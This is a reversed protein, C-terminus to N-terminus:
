GIQGHSFSSFSPYVWSQATSVIPLRMRTKVVCGRLFLSLLSISRPSNFPKRKSCVMYGARQLMPPSSLTAARALARLSASCFHHLFLFCWWFFVFDMLGSYVFGLPIFRLSSSLLPPIGRGGLVLGHRPTSNPFTTIIEHHESKLRRTHLPSPPYSDKYRKKEKEKEKEKKKFWTIISKPVIDQMCSASHFIFFRLEM